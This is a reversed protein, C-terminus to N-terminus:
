DSNLKEGGNKQSSPIGNAISIRGAIYLEKTEQGGKGTVEADRECILPINGSAGGNYLTRSLEFLSVARRKSEFGNEIVVQLAGVSEARYVTNIRLLAEADSDCAFISIGLRIHTNKVCYDLIDDLKERVATDGLLVAVTHGFFLQQSSQENLQEFSEALSKSRVDIFQLEVDDGNGSGARPNLCAASVRYEGDHFDVSLAGVMLRDSLETAGRTCGSLVLMSILVAALCSLRVASQRMAKIIKM